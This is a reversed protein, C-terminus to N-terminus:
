AQNNLKVPYLWQQTLQDKEIAGCTIHVDNLAHTAKPKENIMSEETSDHRYFNLQDKNIALQFKKFKSTKTKLYCATAEGFGASFESSNDYSSTNTLGCSSM